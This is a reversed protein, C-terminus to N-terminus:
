AFVIEFYEMGDGYLGYVVLTIFWVLVILGLAFEVYIRLARSNRISSNFSGKGMLILGVFGLPNVATIMALIEGIDFCLSAFRSPENVSYLIVFIISLFAILYFVLQLILGIKFKRNM